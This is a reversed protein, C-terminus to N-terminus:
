LSYARSVMVLADVDGKGVGFIDWLDVDGVAKIVRGNAEVVDISGGKDCSDRRRSGRGREWWQGEGEDM